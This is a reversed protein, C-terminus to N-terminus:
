HTLSHLTFFFFGLPLGKCFAQRSVSVRAWRRRVSGNRIEDKEYAFWANHVAKFMASHAARASVGQKLWGSLFLLMAVYFLFWNPCAHPHARGDLRYVQNEMQLLLEEM